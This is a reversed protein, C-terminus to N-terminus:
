EAQVAKDYRLYGNTCYKFCQFISCVMFTDVQFLLFSSLLVLPPVLGDGEPAVVVM